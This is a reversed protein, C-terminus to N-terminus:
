GLGSIAGNYRLRVRFGTKGSFEYVDTTEFHELLLGRASTPVVNYEPRQDNRIGFRGFVYTVDTKPSRM